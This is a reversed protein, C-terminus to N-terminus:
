KDNKLIIVSLKGSSRDELESVFDDEKGLVVELRIHINELYEQHIIKAEFDNILSMVIHGLEYPYQFQLQAMFILEIVSNNNIAENAASGYANILGPIGLKSGGYYRVVFVATNVVEARRIMNLIPLGSSGKPEGADTAFEDVMDERLLRYAYCIHTAQPHSNKLSSLIEKVEVLDNVPVALSNFKSGKDKFFGETKKKITRFSDSV